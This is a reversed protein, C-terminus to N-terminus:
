MTNTKTHAPRNSKTAPSHKKKNPRNSNHVQNKPLWVYMGVYVRAYTCTHKFTCAQIEKMSCVYIHIMSRNISKCIHWWHSSMVLLSGSRHMSYKIPLQTVRYHEKWIYMNALMPEIITIPFRYTCFCLSAGIRRLEIKHQPAPIVVHMVYHWSTATPDLMAHDDTKNRKINLAPAHDLQSHHPVLITQDLQHM